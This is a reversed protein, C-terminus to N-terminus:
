QLIASKVVTIGLYIIITSIHVNLRTYPIRWYNNIAAEMNVLILRLKQNNVIAVVVVNITAWNEYAFLVM